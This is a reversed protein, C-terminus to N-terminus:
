VDTGGKVCTDSSKWILRDSNERPASCKRTRYGPHYVLLKDRNQTPILANGQALARKLIRRTSAESNIIWEERTKSDRIDQQTEIRFNDTITERLAYLFETTTPEKGLVCTELVTINLDWISHGVPYMERLAALSLVDRDAMRRIWSSGCDGHTLRLLDLIRTAAIRIDAALGYNPAGALWSCFMYRNLVCVAEASIVRGNEVIPGAQLEISLYALVGILKQLIDPPRRNRVQRARKKKSDPGTKSSHRRDQATKHQFFSQGHEKRNIAAVVKKLDPVSYCASHSAEGGSERLHNSDSPNHTEHHTTASAKPEQVAATHAHSNM